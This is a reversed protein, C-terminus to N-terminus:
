PRKSSKRPCPGAQRDRGAARRPRRRAGASGRKVWARWCRPARPTAPMPRPCPSYNLLGAKMQKDRSAALHRGDGLRRHLRNDRRSRPSSTSAPANNYGTKIGDVGEVRGLLRTTIAMTPATSSSGSASFYRYYDPYHVAAPPSRAAMESATTWQGDSQAPRLCQPIDYRDHRDLPAHRTMRAATASESGALNEAIVVAADNASRTILGLVRMACPSPRALSLGLKTPSQARSCIDLGQLATNLNIKGSDLAGFLLYLTMMKTLSAPYRRLGDPESM